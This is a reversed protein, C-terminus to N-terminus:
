ATRHSSSSELTLSQSYDTRLLLLSHQFLTFSWGIDVASRSSEVRGRVSESAAVHDTQAAAETGVDRGEKRIEARFCRGAIALIRLHNAALAPLRVPNVGFFTAEQKFVM